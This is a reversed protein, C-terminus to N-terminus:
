FSSFSGADVPSAFKLFDCFCEVFRDIPNNFSSVVTTLVPEDLTTVTGARLQEEHRM